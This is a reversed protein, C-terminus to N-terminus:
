VHVLLHSPQMMTGLFLRGTTLRFVIYIVLNMTTWGFSWLYVRKEARFNVDEIRWLYTLSSFTGPLDSVINKFFFRICIPCCISFERMTVINTCKYGNLGFQISLLSRWCFRPQHVIKENKLQNWFNKYMHSLVVCKYRKFFAPFLSSYWRLKKRGLSSCCALRHQEHM